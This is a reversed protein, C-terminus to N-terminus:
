LVQRGPNLRGTPDFSDKVKRNLDLTSPQPNDRPLATDDALHVLGIGLEALFTGPKLAGLASALSSPRLSRREPGPVPPPGEAPAFGSGLVAAQDDVDAPDGELLVWTSQGDFLVSSPRYLRPVVSFPDADDSRLWREAAPRPQVRLVVEAVLGLTGLSGVLLRCLDFGSVNKVVPGGAKILRGEASVYRAELLYDRVPGWRLRRLGSHGVSLVGGITARAPEVPDFPVMQGAEALVKDLEAVTTGARARVIMEEPQHAVVGSPPRVLRTSPHPLGGVGWQTRGGVAAVPGEPGVEEAFALLARDALPTATSM